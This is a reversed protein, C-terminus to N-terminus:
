AAIAEERETLASQIIELVQDATLGGKEIANKVDNELRKGYDVEKTKVEVNKSGWESYKEDLAEWKRFARIKAAAKPKDLKKGFTNNKRFEHPVFKTLFQIAVKKREGKLARLLNNIMVINDGGIVAGVTMPVISDLLKVTMTENHGITKIGENVTQSQKATLPKYQKEFPIAQDTM